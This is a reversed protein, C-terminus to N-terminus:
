RPVRVLPMGESGAPRRADITQSAVLRHTTM